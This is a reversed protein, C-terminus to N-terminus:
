RQGRYVASVLCHAGTLQRLVLQWTSWSWPGIERSEGALVEWPTLAISEAPDPDLDAPRILYASATGTNKITIMLEARGNGTVGDAHDADRIPIPGDSDAAIAGVQFRAINTTTNAGAAPYQKYFLPIWM